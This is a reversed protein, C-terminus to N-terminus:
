VVFYYWKNNVVALNVSCLDLALMSHLEFFRNVVNYNTKKTVKNRGVVCKCSLVAIVVDGESYSSLRRDNFM